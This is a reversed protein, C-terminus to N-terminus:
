PNSTPPRENEADQAPFSSSLYDVVTGIEEDTLEAGRNVMDDVTKSWYSRAGKKSTVVRINHCTTCSRQVIPRGAGEPLTAPSTGPATQAASWVLRCCAILM